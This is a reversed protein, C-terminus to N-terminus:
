HSWTAVCVGPACRREVMHVGAPMRLQGQDGNDVVFINGTVDPVDQVIDGPRFGALGDYWHIDRNVVRVVRATRDAGYYLTAFYQRPGNLAVVDRAPDVHADLYAAVMPVQPTPLTAVEVVTTVLLVLMAAALLRRRGAWALAFGVVPLLETTFLNLFREDLLPKKVSVLFLLLLELGGCGAVYLLGRRGPGTARYGRWTMWALAPIGVVTVATLLSTPGPHSVLFAAQNLVGPISFPAAWYPEGVHRFQPLAYILWPLLALGATAAALVLRVATSRAPRLFLIAALLQAPVALAVLYHTYLGALVALGYIAVRGAGPDDIARWLALTMALLLTTALAYMRADRSWLVLLPMLAVIAGGAIGVHDGGIRRGLAMAVPVAAAGAVVSPLRLTTPTNGFLTALRVLIYQLPPHNDNHVVTIMDVISRRMLVGMFAEDSWLPILGLFLGRAALGLLTLAVVWRGYVTAMWNRTAAATASSVPVTPSTTRAM